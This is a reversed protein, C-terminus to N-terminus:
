IPKAQISLDSVHLIRKVFSQCIKVRFLPCEPVRGRFGAGLVARWSWPGHHSSWRDERVLWPGRGDICVISHQAKLFPLPSFMFYVLCPSLNCFLGAGLPTGTGPHKEGAM